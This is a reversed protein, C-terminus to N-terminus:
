GEIKYDYTSTDGVLSNISFGTDATKSSVFAGHATGGPTNITLTIISSATVRTDSVAVPTAGNAAPTTGLKPFYGQGIATMVVTSAATYTVLYQVWSHAPVVGITGAANVGTGGALTQAFNGNNAYTWLVSQGVAMNPVAAIINDATDTTDTQAASQNSRATVGGAIGAATVSGAGTSTVATSALLQLTHLPVTATHAFTATPAAQTGGLTVIYFGVSLPPVLVTAPLTVGSGATLTQPYITTNKIRAIFSQGALFTSGQLAAQIHAATDTADSFAATPGSRTIQGGVLGAATLTGGVNTTIATDTVGGAESSGLIENLLQANILVDGLVSSWLILTKGAM